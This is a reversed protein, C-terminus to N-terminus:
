RLWAEDFRMGPPVQAASGNEVMGAVPCACYDLSFAGAPRHNGSLGLGGFPLKSSAGATGTNVNICGARAEALFRDIMAPDKTFISAALGFATANAQAIADDLSDARAVRLFPGFVERDCGASRIPGADDGPVFREVAMVGPSLYWGGGPVEVPTCAVLPQGGVGAAERQFDLVARRAAESIMPGMFVPHPARPDGVILNSAAKCLLPIFKDAIAEHVIM